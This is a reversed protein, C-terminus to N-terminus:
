TLFSLTGAVSLSKLKFESGYYVVFCIRDFQDIKMLEPKQREFDKSDIGIRVEKIERIDVSVTSSM